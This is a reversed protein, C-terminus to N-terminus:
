QWGMSGSELLTPNACGARGAISRSSARAGCQRPTCGGANACAAMRSAAQAQDLFPGQFRTFGRGQGWAMAHETDVGKLVLREAGIRALLAAIRASADALAPSWVLKVSDPRLVWPATISLTALDLPGLILQFGGLDLLSRVHDLLDIEACAQMLPVEIGFRAGLDRALQSMRAFGPSLIAEIGLRIHIPLGDQLAARTLPGRARLDDHLVRLLRADLRAGFHHMLFPDSLAETVVPRLNLASLSVRLQRFAPALRAAAPRSRDTSLSMGMQGVMLEALPAHAVIEELAALGAPSAPMDEPAPAGEKQDAACAAIYAYFPGPDEDLRWLSTLNAPDPVDALFLRGLAMKLHGPAQPLEPLKTDRPAACLLVLDHNQLAFVQGAFRQATDQLLVRAVRMHHPRPAPATLRSLHLVLAVKDRPQRLLREAADSLRREVGSAAAAGASAPPASRM